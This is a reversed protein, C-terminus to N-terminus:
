DLKFNLAFILVIKNNIKTYVLFFFLDLILDFIICKDVNHLYKIYFQLYTAILRWYM